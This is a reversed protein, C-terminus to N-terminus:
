LSSQKILSIFGNYITRIYRKYDDDTIHSLDEKGFSNLHIHLNNNTIKNNNTINVINNKNNKNKLEIIEEELHAIKIDKDKNKNYNDLDKKCVELKNLLSKKITCINNIHNILIHKRSFIQNCYKCTNSTNNVNNISANNKINIQTQINNIKKRLQKIDLKENNIVETNNAKILSSVCSIKSNKHKTLLYESKFITNCVNCNYSPKLENINCKIKKNIHKTLVYKNMFIKNCLVCKLEQEKLNNNDDDELVPIINNEDM